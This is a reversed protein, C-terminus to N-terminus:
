LSLISNSCYITFSMKSESDSNTWSVTNHPFEQVDAEFTITATGVENANIKVTGPDNSLGVTAVNADTTEGNKVKTEYEFGKEWKDGKCLKLSYTDKGTKKLKGVDKPKDASVLSTASFILIVGILMIFGFKLLNKIKENTNKSNEINRILNTKGGTKYNKNKM